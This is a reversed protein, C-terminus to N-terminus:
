SLFRKLVLPRTGLECTDYGDHVDKSGCFFLSSDPSLFLQVHDILFFFFLFFSFSELSCTLFIAM